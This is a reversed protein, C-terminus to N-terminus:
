AGGAAVRDVSAVRFRTVRGVRVTEIRGAKAWRWVTPRSVGLRRATERDSILLSDNDVGAGTDRQKSARVEIAALAATLEAAITPRIEDAVLKALTVLAAAVSPSQPSTNSTHGIVRRRYASAM